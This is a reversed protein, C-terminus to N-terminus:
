HIVTVFCAIYIKSRAIVDGIDSDWENRTYLMYLMKIFLYNQHVVDPSCNLMSTLDMVRTNKNMLMRVQKEVYSSSPPSPIFLSLSPSILSLSPCTLIISLFKKIHIFVTLYIDYSLATTCPLRYVFLHCFLSFPISVISVFWSINIVIIPIKIIVTIFTIINKYYQYYHPHILKKIYKYHFCYHNHHYSYICDCHRYDNRHYHYLLSICYNDNNM